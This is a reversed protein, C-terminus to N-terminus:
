LHNDHERHNAAAAAFCCSRPLSFILLLLLLLLLLVLPWMLVPLSLARVSVGVIVAFRAKAIM